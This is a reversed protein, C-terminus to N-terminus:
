WTMSRPLDQFFCSGCLGVEILEIAGRGFDSLERMESLLEKTDKATAIKGGPGLPKFSGLVGCEAAESGSKCAIPFRDFSGQMQRPAIAWDLSLDMSQLQDLPLHIAARAEIQEPQSHQSHQLFSSFLREATVVSVPVLKVLLSSSGM